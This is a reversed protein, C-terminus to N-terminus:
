LAEVIDFQWDYADGPPGHCTVLIGTLTSYGFTPTSCHWEATGAHQANGTKPLNGYKYEAYIHIARECSLDGQRVVVDATRERSHEIPCSPQTTDLSTPPTAITMVGTAVLYDGTGDTLYLDGYRCAIPDTMCHPSRLQIALSDGLYRTMRAAPTRQEPRWSLTEEDLTWLTPGWDVARKVGNLPALLLGEQGEGFEQTDRTCRAVTFTAHFNGDRGWWMDDM